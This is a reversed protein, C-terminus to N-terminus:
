RKLKRILYEPRPLDWKGPMPPITEPDVYVNIVSPTNSKLADKVAPKIEEPKKVTAGYAKFSKAFAEFDIDYPEGKKYEFMTAIDRGEGCQIWQLDRICLWGINNIVLTM